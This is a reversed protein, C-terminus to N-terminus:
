NNTGLIWLMAAIIVAVLINITIMARILVAPPEYGNM